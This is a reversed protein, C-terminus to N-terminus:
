FSTEPNKKQTFLTIVLVVICGILLGFFLGFAVIMEPSTFKATMEMAQDIQSDTMNGGAEMQERSNDLIAQAFGTDVFKVYIYTFINSIISSILITWFGVGFGQGFDMFGDGNDKFYKQALVIVIISPIIGLYSWMGGKGALGAFSLVLFYAISIVALILGYRIGASRTTVKEINEEM